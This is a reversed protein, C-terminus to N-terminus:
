VPPEAALGHHGEGEGIEGERGGGGGVGFEELEAGTVLDHMLTSAAQLLPMFLATRVRWQPVAAATTALSAILAAVSEAELVGALTIPSDPDHYASLARLCATRHM